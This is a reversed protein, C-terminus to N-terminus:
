RIHRERSSYGQLLTEECSLTRRVKSNEAFRAPSLDAVDHSEDLLHSQQHGSQRPMPGHRSVHAVPMRAMDSIEYRGCPNRIEAVLEDCPCPKAMKCRDFRIGFDPEVADVGPM